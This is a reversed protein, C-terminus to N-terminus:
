TVTPCLTVRPFTIAWLPLVPQLVPACRWKPTYTVLLQVAMSGNPHVPAGPASGHGDSWPLRQSVPLGAFGNAEGGPLRVAVAPLAAAESM